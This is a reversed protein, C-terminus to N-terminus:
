WIAKKQQLVERWPDYIAYSFAHKNRWCPSISAACMNVTKIQLWIICLVASNRWLVARLCLLYRPFINSFIIVICSRKQSSASQSFATNWDCHFSWKRNVVQVIGYHVEKVGGGLFFNQMSMKKLKEQAHSCYSFQFACKMTKSTFLVMDYSARM